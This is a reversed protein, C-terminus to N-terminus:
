AALDHVEVSLEKGIARFAAEIQDMRTSHTADLLRDINGKSIRLRRALEAKRIGSAQLARWLQVKMDALAPLRIARYKKGRYVKPAPLAGARIHLDVACVLADAAMELAEAETDGQTIGRSLDPFTVVFGGEEAPEFLAYYVM